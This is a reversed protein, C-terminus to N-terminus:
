KSENSKIIRINTIRQLLTSGCKSCIVYREKRGMKVPLVNRVKYKPDTAHCVLCGWQRPSTQVFHSDLKLEIRTLIKFIENLM